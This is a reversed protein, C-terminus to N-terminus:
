YLTPLLFDELLTEYHLEVEGGLTTSVVLCVDVLDNNKAGASLFSNYLSEDNDIRFCLPSTINANASGGCNYYLHLTLSLNDTDVESEGDYFLAFYTPSSYSYAFTAVMNLYGNQVYFQGETNSVTQVQQNKVSLSDQGGDVYVPDSTDVNRTFTPLETCGDVNLVIDYENGEVLDNITLTPDTLSFSISARRVQRLQPLDSINLPTLIVDFDTYLRCTSTLDENVVTVSLGSYTTTTDDTDSCATFSLMCSLFFAVPNLFTSKKMNM